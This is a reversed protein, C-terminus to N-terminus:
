ALGSQRIISMSNASQLTVVGKPNLAALDVVVTDGKQMSFMSIFTLSLPVEENGGAVRTVVTNAGQLPDVTIRITGYYYNTGALNDKPLSTQVSIQYVGEQPCTWIGTTPAFTGTPKEYVVNPTSNFLRNWTISVESASTQISEVSTVTVLNPLDIDVLAQEIRFFEDWIARTTNEDASRPASSPSYPIPTTRKVM